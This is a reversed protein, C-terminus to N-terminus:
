INLPKMHLLVIGNRHLRGAFLLRRLPYLLPYKLEVVKLTEAASSLSLLEVYVVYHWAKM